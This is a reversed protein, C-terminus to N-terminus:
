KGLHAQAYAAMAARVGGLRVHLHSLMRQWTHAQDGRAEWVRAYEQLLALRPTVHMHSHACATHNCAIHIACRTSYVVGSMYMYVRSM